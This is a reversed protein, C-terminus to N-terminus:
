PHIFKKNQNLVVNARHNQDFVKYINALTLAYFSQTPKLMAAQQAYQVAQDRDGLVAYLTASLNLAEANRPEQSVVQQSLRLAEIIDDQFVLLISQLHLARMNDPDLKMAHSLYAEAKKFQQKEMLFMAHHSLIFSALQDSSLPKTMSSDMVRQGGLAPDIDIVHNDKSFRVYFHGPVQVGQATIGLRQALALYVFSLGTCLGQRQQIVMNLYFNEPLAADKDQSDYSFGQVDFIFHNIKDIMSVLSDTPHIQDQLISAWKDLTKHDAVPALSVNDQELSVFLAAVDSFNISELQDSITSSPNPVWSVENAHSDVSGFAAFFLALVIIKINTNMYLGSFGKKYETYRGGSTLRYKKFM